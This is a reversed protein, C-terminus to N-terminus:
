KSPSLSSSEEVSREIPLVSLKHISRMLTTTATKIRVRRVRGESDPFVEIIRGLLWKSPPLDDEKILVIDGVEVNKSQKM